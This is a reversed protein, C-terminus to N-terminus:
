IFNFYAEAEGSETYATLTMTMAVAGELDSLEFATITCRPIYLAGSKGAVYSNGSKPGFAYMFTTEENLRYRKFEEARYKDLVATIEVSVDRSTALKERIGSTACITKIDALENSITFTISNAPFCSNDYYSGLFVTNNKAVLPDQGSLVPSQPSTLGIVVDSTYTVASADDATFGFKAGLTDVTTAWDIDLVAGTGSVTFLGTSNSYSVSVVQDGSGVSAATMATALAAAADHPDKFFGVTLTATVSGGDDTFDITDSTATIQIPDFYFATGSLSFDANILSGAEATMSMESVKAGSMMQVAAGNGRYDWVTLDPLSDTSSPKYLVAKGLGVGAIGTVTSLNFNLTLTDTSISEICRIIFGSGFKILVAEGREFNAGLGGGVTITAPASTSGVTASVVTYETAALSHSGFAGKLLLHMEPLAGETGSHYVYHTLSGEPQENGLISKSKGISAKLEDNTLTELGPTLTLGDQVALYDTGASPAVPVGATEETIAMRTKRTVDVAM